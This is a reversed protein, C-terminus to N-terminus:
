RRGSQAWRRTHPPSLSFLVTLTQNYICAIMSRVYSSLTSSQVRVKTFDAVSPKTGAAAADAAFQARNEGLFLFYASLPKKLPALDVEANDDNDDDKGEDADNDAAVANNGADKDGAAAADDDDIVAAPVIGYDNGFPNAKKVPAPPSVADVNMDVDSMQSAPAQTETQTESQNIDNILDQTSSVVDQSDTM